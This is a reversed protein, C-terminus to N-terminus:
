EQPLDGTDVMFDETDIDATKGCELCHVTVVERTEDSSVITVNLSFCHPCKVQNMADSWLWGSAGSDQVDTERGWQVEEERRQAQLEPMARTIIHIM